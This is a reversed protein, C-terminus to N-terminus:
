QSADRIEELKVVAEDVAKEIEWGDVLIHGVMTQLVSQRQAELAWATDPGPWGITHSRASNTLFAALYPDDWLPDNVHDKYVPFNFGGLLRMYELQREPEYLWPGEDKPPLAQKPGM